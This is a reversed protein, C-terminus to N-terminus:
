KIINVEPQIKIYFRDRVEQQIQEALNLIEQGTANGYNVLVLAQKEHVGTNGIRKGKFGCQEILWGAPVKGDRSTTHKDHEFQAIVGPVNTCVPNKFFSGACKVHQLHRKEREAIIENCTQLPTNGSSSQVSSPAASSSKSVQHLSNSSISLKSLKDASDNSVTPVFNLEFMASLVVWQPNQKFYSTRYAFACEQTDFDRVE